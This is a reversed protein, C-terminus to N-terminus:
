NQGDVVISGDDAVTCSFLAPAGPNLLSKLDNGGNAVCVAPQWQRGPSLMLDCVIRWFPLQPITPSIRSSYVEVHVQATADIFEALGPDVVLRVPTPLVLLEALTATAMARAMVFASLHLEKDV